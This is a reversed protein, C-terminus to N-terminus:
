DKILPNPNIPFFLVLRKQSGSLWQTLHERSSFIPLNCIREIFDWNFFVVELLHNIQPPRTAKLSLGKLSLLAAPRRYSAKPSPFIPLSLLPPPCEQCCSWPPPLSLLLLLLLPACSTHLHFPFAQEPWSEGPPLALPYVQICTIQPPSEQFCSFSPHHKSSIVLLPASTSDSTVLLQGDISYHVWLRAKLLLHPGQLCKSNGVCSQTRVCSTNVHIGHSPWWEVWDELLHSIEM